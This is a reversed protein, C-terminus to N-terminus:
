NASTVYSEFSGADVFAEEYKSVHEDFLWSKLPKKFKVGNTEAIKLATYEVSNSLTEYTLNFDLMTMNGIVEKTVGLAIAMCRVKHGLSTGHGNSKLRYYNEVQERVDKSVYEDTYDIINQFLVIRKIEDFDVCNIRRCNESLIDYNDRTKGIPKGVRIEKLDFTVQIVEDDEINLIIRLFRDLADLNDYESMLISLYFTMYPMQILEISGLENKPIDLMGLLSACEWYDKIKIPSILWNKYPVPKDFAIYRNFLEEKTISM